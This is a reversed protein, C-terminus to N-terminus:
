GACNRSKVIAVYVMSRFLSKRGNYDIRRRLELVLGPEVLMFRVLLSITKAKGMLPVFQDM